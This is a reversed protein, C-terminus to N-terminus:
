VSRKLKGFIMDYYAYNYACFPDEGLLNNGKILARARCGGGCVYKYECEKCKEFNDVYLNKLERIRKEKIEEVSNLLINGLDLNATHAMHCPRVNGEYDISILARGFGCSKKFQIVFDTAASKEYLEDMGGLGGSGYEAFQKETPIWEDFGDYDGAYTLLSFTIRVEMRKSLDLYKKTYDINKRHITAVMCVNIGANRMFVINKMITEYYGADRIFTPNSEDYGDISVDIEDVFAKIKDMDYRSSLTGNTIVRLCPIKLEEKIFSFLEYIDNRLFPEGGSIIITKCGLEKLKSFVICMDDYKIELPNERKSDHSYCGKCHLNCKQTVHVYATTISGDFEDRELLFGERELVEYLKQQESSMNEIIQKEQLAKVLEVGEGSLGIISGTNSNGVMSINKISFLEMCGQKM